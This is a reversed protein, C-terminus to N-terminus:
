EAWHAAHRLHTGPWVWLNGGNETRQDTLLLGALLTFTGPPQGDRYGDIHPRGPRHPYPPINLAVQAQGFAVEVGPPGTLEAAAALIGGPRALLGSLAPSGALSPWYFHPGVQGALPPAAAILRGAEAEALELDPPTVLGPLVLYGREAFAHLQSRTLVPM